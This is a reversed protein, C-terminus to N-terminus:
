FTENLFLVDLQPINNKGFLLLKIEDLKSLSLRNVNWHGIRLGRDELGLDIFHHADDDDGSSSHWLSENLISSSYSSTSCFSSSFSANSSSSSVDPGPNVSVDGALLIICSSLLLANVLRLAAKMKLSPPAGDKRSRRPWGSNRGPFSKKDM